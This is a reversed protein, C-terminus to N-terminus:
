RNWPHTPDLPQGSTDCGRLKGGRELSQKAGDHCPKCLPQWNGVDWFLAQDGRHPVVHDVVSAATLRGAAECM